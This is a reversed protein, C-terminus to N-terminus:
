ERVTACNDCRLQASDLYALGCAQCEEDGREPLGFAEAISYGLADRAQLSLREGLVAQSDTNFQSEM